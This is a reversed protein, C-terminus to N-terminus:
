ALGQPLNKFVKAHMGRYVKVLDDSVYKRYNLALIKSLCTTFLSLMGQLFINHVIYLDLFEGLDWFYREARAKYKEEVTRTFEKILSVVQPQCIKYVLQELRKPGGDARASHALVRVGLFIEQDTLDYQTLLRDYDPGLLRRLAEESSVSLLRRLPTTWSSQRAQPKNVTYKSDHADNTNSNVNKYKKSSTFTMHHPSVQSSPVSNVSSKEPQIRADNIMKSNSKGENKNSTKRSRTDSKAKRNKSVSSNVLYPKRTRSSRQAVTQTKRHAAKNVVVHEKLSNEDSNKCKTRITNTPLKVSKNGKHTTTKPRKDNTTIQKREKLPKHLEKDNQRESNKIRNPNTKNNVKAKKEIINQPRAGAAQVTRPEDEVYGPRTDGVRSVRRSHCPSKESHSDHRHPERALRRSFVDNHWPDADQLPRCSVLGPWFSRDLLKPADKEKVTVAFSKYGAGRLSVQEINLVQVGQSEIHSKLTLQTLYAVRFVCLTVHGNSGTKALSVRRSRSLAPASPKAHSRRDKNSSQTYYNNSWRNM